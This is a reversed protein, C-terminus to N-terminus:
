LGIKVLSGMVEYIGPSATGGTLAVRCPQALKLMKLGTEEILLKFIASLNEESIEPAAEIADRVKKLTEKGADDLWKTKAKEDFTVEETFYFASVQPLEDLTRYRDRETKIAAIAYSRDKCHVDHKDFYPTALDFIEEDSLKLLHQSNVWGLKEVDFVSASKSVQALDFFKILEDETFIEQDGHAWGLRALYNQMAEPLYGMERYEVVSVAGHRKSLKKKDPGHIMPLHAFEPIPCGLANYLIVQKPTNNIHDDGRIIHTIKMEVDDVVVTLNYTPTGDSRAIIFDDLERNDFTIEGRCIDHYTTEGEMPAKIRITFPLDPQDSRERCKYNYKPKKGSKMAEERYATIEEPTCYCRYAKGEDMLKQIHDKYLDMRESQFFPGENHSLGLWEMGELIKDTYEELSRERDTDEVRLIFTGQNHKAFLYNFLATRAGGIHLHGTPSPAFRVRVTM